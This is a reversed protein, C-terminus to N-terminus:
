WNVSMIWRKNQKSCHTTTDKTIQKLMTFRMSWKTQTIVIHPPQPGVKQSQERWPEKALLQRLSHPLGLLCLSVSQEALLADGYLAHPLGPPESGQQWPFWQTRVGLLLPMTHDGWSIVAAAFVQLLFDTAQVPHHPLPTWTIWGLYICCV